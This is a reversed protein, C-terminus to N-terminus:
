FRSDPPDSPSDDQLSRLDKKLFYKKADAIHADIVGYVQYGLKQYFHPAQFSYTDLIVVRCDRRRAEDEAVRVLQTGLGRGRLDDRVWLKSIEMIGGWTWGSLGGQLEGREDRAFIGFLRGDDLQTQTVNYQYLGEDLAAVDSVNPNEEVTLEYKEM